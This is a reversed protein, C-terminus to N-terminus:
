KILLADMPRLCGAAVLASFEGLSHGAVISPSVGSADLIAIVVLSHLLIAPQANSTKTLEELDGAFSLEAIDFGLKDNAERYLERAVPFADYFDKGMGVYQSAQGPFIMGAKM